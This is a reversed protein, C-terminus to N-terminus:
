GQAEAPQLGWAVCVREATVSALGLSPSPPGLSTTWCHCNLGLGSEARM